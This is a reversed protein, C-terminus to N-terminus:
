THQVLNDVTEELPSDISTQTQHSIPHSSLELSQLADSESHHLKAEIERLAGSPVVAPIQYGWRLNLPRGYTVQLGTEKLKKDLCDLTCFLITDYPYSYAFELECGECIKYRWAKKRAAFEADTEGKKKEPNLRWKYYMYISNMEIMKEEPTYLNVRTAEKIEEVPKNLLLAIKEMMTQERKGGKKTM